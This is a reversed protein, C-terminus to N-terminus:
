DRPSPSTYLLCVSPDDGSIVGFNSTVTFTTSGTGNFNLSVSYTDEDDTSSDCSTEYGAFSALCVAACAPNAFGPTGLEGLDGYEDVSACWNAGDDNLVADYSDPDLQM